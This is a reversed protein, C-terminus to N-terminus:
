RIRKEIWDRLVFTFGFLRWAVLELPFQHSFVMRDKTTINCRQETINRVTCVVIEDRNVPSPERPPDARLAYVVADVFM